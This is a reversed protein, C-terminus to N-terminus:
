SKLNDYFDQVIEQAHIVAAGSAEPIRGEQVASLFEEIAARHGIAARAAHSLGAEYGEVRQTEQGHPTWELHSWAHVVLTGRTGFITLRDCTTKAKDFCFFSGVTVAVGSESQCIMESCDEVKSEPDLTRSVQGKLELREDLLWAVRDLLHISDTVTVGGGAFHPDFFWAPFESRDIVEMYHDHVAVIAGLMEEQIMRRAARVPPYFRHTMNVMLTKGNQQAAEVIERADDLNTALPKELFVHKGAALAAKACEAHMSHPLTIVVANLSEDAIIKQWDAYQEIEDDLGQRNTPNPEAVSVIQVGSQAELNKYHIQGMKGYGITGVRFRTPILPPSEESLTQTSESTTRM